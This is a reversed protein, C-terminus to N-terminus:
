KTSQGLYTLYPTDADFELAHWNGRKEIPPYKMYDGYSTTLVSNWGNPVPVMINEFPFWDTEMWDSKNFVNKKLSVPSCLLLGVKESQDYSTVSSLRHMHRITRISNFPVFPCHLIKHLLQAQWRPSMNLVYAHILKREFRIIKDYAKLKISNNCVGDLPFIDVFIGNNWNLEEPNRMNHENVYTNSNRIRAYPTFLNKENLESQLFYPFGFEEQPLRLLKDYDERPLIVDSDDDWPIFGKHRVAGLLTGGSVWIRLHHKKCVEFLKAMLDLQIAWAKKMAISVTYECRVEERLFEETIFDESLLREIETM